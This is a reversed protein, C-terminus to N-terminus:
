ETPDDLIEFVVVSPIDIDAFDDDTIELRFIRKGEDNMSVYIKGSYEKRGIPHLAFFLALAFFIAVVLAAAIIIM